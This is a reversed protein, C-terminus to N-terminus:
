FKSAFTTSRDMIVENPLRYNSVIVKMFTYILEEITHSEKYPMFYAYKTLRDIIVLISNYKIKIIPELSM